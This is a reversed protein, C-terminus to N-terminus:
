PIYTASLIEKIKPMAEIAATEGHKIINPAKNFEFMSIHGFDPSLLIDIKTDYLQSAAIREEAIYVTQLLVDIINPTWHNKKQKFLNFPFFGISSRDFMKYFLPNDQSENKDSKEVIGEKKNRMFQTYNKVNRTVNVAIVIDAGMNRVINAPVLNVLGGDVLFRNNYKVPVFLGPFSASARMAKRLLGERIIVEEGTCIDSCVVSLPIKLDSFTIDGVIKKMIREMSNGGFLGSMSFSPNAIRMIKKLPFDLAIKEMEDSTKGSAYAGGVIAGMSSGAICDININERELVKIVGIHALGRSTGCGLALGIKPRFKNILGNKEM